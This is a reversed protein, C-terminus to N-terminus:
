LMFEDNYCLQSSHSHFSKTFLIDPRLEYVSAEILCELGVLIPSHFDEPSIVIIVPWVVIDRPRAFFFWVVISLQM